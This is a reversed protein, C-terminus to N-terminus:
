KYFETPLLFVDSSLAYYPDFLSSFNNELCNNDWLLYIIAPKELSSWDVM